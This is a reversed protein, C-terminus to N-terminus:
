CRVRVKPSLAPLWSLPHSRYFPWPPLVLLATLALGAGSIQVMLQFSQAAYGAVFAAASSAIILWTILTDALHQGAFDIDLTDIWNSLREQLGM